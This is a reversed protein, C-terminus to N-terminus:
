PLFSANVCAAYPVDASLLGKQKGWALVDDFQAQSPVGATVFNPVKYDKLLPAAV